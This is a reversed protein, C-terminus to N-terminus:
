ACQIAVIDVSVHVPVAPAQTLIGLANRLHVGWEGHDRTPSMM